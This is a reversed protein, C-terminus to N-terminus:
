ADSDGNMLADVLTAYLHQPAASGTAPSVTEELDRCPHEVPSAGYAPAAGIASRDIDRRKQIQVRQQGIRAHQKGRPM